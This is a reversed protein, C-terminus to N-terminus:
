RPIRTFTATVTKNGTMILYQPNIAGTLDGSWGSFVFNKNNSVATLEVTTGYTYNTQEPNTTVKGPGVIVITLNYLSEMFTATITHNAQVNYFTFSSQQGIVTGDVTVNAIEYGIEPIIIFSVDEGSDVQIYGSPDISGGLDEM